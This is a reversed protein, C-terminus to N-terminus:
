KFRSLSLVCDQRMVKLFIHTVSNMIATVSSSSSETSVISPDASGSVVVSDSFMSSVVISSFSSLVVASVPLIMYNKLGNVFVSHLISYSRFQVSQFFLKIKLKLETKPELHDSKVLQVGQM